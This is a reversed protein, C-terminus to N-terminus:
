NGYIDVAFYKDNMVKYTGDARIDGIAKSLADRLASDEKRVAFGAGVGRCEVDDIAGGLFAFGQGADLALFGAYGQFVDIRRPKSIRTSKLPVPPKQLINGLLTTARDTLDEPVIWGSLTFARDPEKRAAEDFAEVVIALACTQVGTM